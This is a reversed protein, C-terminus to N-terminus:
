FIFRDPVLVGRGQHDSGSEFSKTAPFRRTEPGLVGSTLRKEWMDQLGVGQFSRWKRGALASGGAESSGETESDM